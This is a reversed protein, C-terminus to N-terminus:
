AIKKGNVNAANAESKSSDGAEDEDNDFRREQGRSMEQEGEDDTVDDEIVVDQEPEPDEVDYLVNLVVRTLSRSETGLEVNVTKNKEDVKGLVIKVVHLLTIAPVLREDVGKEFM